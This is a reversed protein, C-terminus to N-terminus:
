IVKLIIKGINQNAEMHQHAKIVEQWPYVTDIVPRLTKNEFLAAAFDWFEQTLSIQYAQSRARLTSGIIQLRKRLLLGLNFKEVELGGLLALIVLRGDTHLVQLNQEFYPAAIFDLVVDVGKTQSYQQIEEQFNQSQYDIVKTAGLEYCIQHKPASATAYVEANMAKALQIAATGVGSAAAHILIKESPQLKALWKLAQFATLFVEPIAAAEEYSLYEPLKMAMDQHISAHTAYGGGSLLGFVKDGQKWHTVEAGIEIVEGSIEMGLIESAGAPPPYMGRRQLTDARNLATAHVKVLIEQAKPSPTPAEGLYMQEADGPSKVLIAQM